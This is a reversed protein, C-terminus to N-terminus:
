TEREAVTRARTSVVVGAPVFLAAQPTPTLGRGPKSGAESIAPRITIASPASSSSSWASTISRPEAVHHRQRERTPPMRSAKPSAPGGRRRRPPFMGRHGHRLRVGSRQAAVRRAPEHRRTRPAPAAGRRRGAPGAGRSRPPTPPRPPTPSAQRTSGAAGAAIRGRPRQQRADGGALGPLHDAADHQRRSATRSSNRAHPMQNPSASTQGTRGRRAAAARQDPALRLAGLPRAAARPAPAARRRRPGRRPAPEPERPRREASTASPAASTIPAPSTNRQSLPASTAALSTTSATTTTTTASVSM